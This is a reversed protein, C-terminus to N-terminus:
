RQKVKCYFKQKAFFYSKVTWETEPPDLEFEYKKVLQPVLKSIELFSIHRGICTRSGFGFKVTLFNTLGLVMPDIYKGFRFLFGDKLSGGKTWAL